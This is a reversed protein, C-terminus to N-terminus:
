EHSYATLELPTWVFVLHIRKRQLVLLYDLLLQSLTRQEITRNGHNSRWDCNYCRKAWHYSLLLWIIILTLIQSGFVIHCLISNLTHQYIALCSSTWYYSWCVSYALMVLICIKYWFRHVTYHQRYFFCRTTIINHYCPLYLFFTIHVMISLQWFLCHMAAQM